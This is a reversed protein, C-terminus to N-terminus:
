LRPAARSALSSGDDDDAYTVRPIVAEGHDAALRAIAYWAKSGYRIAEGTRLFIPNEETEYSSRKVGGVETCSLM